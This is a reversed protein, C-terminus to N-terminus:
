ALTPPEESTLWDPPLYGTVFPDHGHHLEWAIIRAEDLLERLRIIATEQDATDVHCVIGGAVSASCRGCSATTTKSWSTSGSMATGGTRGTTGCGCRSSRSAFPEELALWWAMLNEFQRGTAGDV